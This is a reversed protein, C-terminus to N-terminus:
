EKNCYEKFEKSTDDTAMFLAHILAEAGGASLVIDNGDVTGHIAIKWILKIKDWLSYQKQYTTFLSLYINGDPFVDETFWSVRVAEGHCECEIYRNHTKMSEGKLRVLCWKEV